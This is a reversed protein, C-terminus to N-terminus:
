AYETSSTSKIGIVAQHFAHRAAMDAVEVLEVRGPGYKSEFYRDVWAAKEVDRVIGRVHYGAALAQDAVHSGIFGTVGTVVIWSGVPIAPDPIGPITM